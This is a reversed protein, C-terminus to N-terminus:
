YGVLICWGMEVLKGRWLLDGVLLLLVMEKDRGNREFWFRTAVVLSIRKEREITVMTWIVVNVM